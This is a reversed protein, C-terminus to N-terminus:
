PKVYKMTYWRNRGTYNVTLSLKLIINLFPKLLTPTIKRKKCM